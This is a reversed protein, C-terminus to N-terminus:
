GGHTLKEKHECYLGFMREWIPGSKGTGVPKKNLEIVPRIESISGSLWIEDAQALEALPILREEIPMQNARALSLILDRTVGSLILHSKPTTMIVNNKIVFLNSRSGEIAYGDNVLIPEDAGAKTAQQFALVNSLLSISKIDCRKWRMDNVTAASLPMDEHARPKIPFVCLFVTPTIKKPFPLQRISDAGRTVQLYVQLNGNGNKSALQEIIHSWDSEKLALPLEIAELSENLRVLHEGLLFTHGNFVPIVEYVGDSFVFGRDLASVRAEELPLFEGNLYAISM